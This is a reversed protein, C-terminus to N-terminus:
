SDGLDAIMEAIARRTEDLKANDMEPWLFADGNWALGDLLKRLRKEVRDAAAADRARVAMIAERLTYAYRHDYWAQRLGEWHLTDLNEGPHDPDPYTICPQTQYPRNSRESMVFDDFANVRPRQFTWSAAGRAETRFFLFGALYRNRVMNGIQGSYSGTAYYWLTQGAKRTEEAMHKAQAPDFILKWGGYCHIDLGLGIPDSPLYSSTCYTLWGAQKATKVDWLMREPSGKKWYGPEDVLVLVPDAIGEEAIAKKVHILSQTMASGLEDPWTDACESLVKRAIALKDALTEPLWGGWFLFPGKLGGKMSLRILRRSESALAFGTVTSDEVTLSGSCSLHTSEIGHDRIDVIEALVQEESMKKWRGSDSYLSRVKDTLDKLRFPYVRIRVPYEREVGEGTVRMSARYTGPKAGDALRLNIWLGTAEGARCTVGDPRNVTFDPVYDFTMGRCYYDTRRPHFVIQRWRPKSALQVGVMVAPSFILKVSRLDSPTFLGVTAVCMEGPAGALVVPKGLDASEPMSWPRLEGPNPVPWLVVEAPPDPQPARPMQAFSGIPTDLIVRGDAEDAPERVVEWRRTLAQARKAKFDALIYLAKVDPHVLLRVERQLWDAGRRNEVFKASGIPSKGEVNHCLWGTLTPPDFPPGENEGGMIKVQFRLRYLVGGKPHPIYVRIRAADADKQPGFRLVKEGDMEVISADGWANWGKLGDVFGPSPLLNGSGAQILPRTPHNVKSKCLLDGSTALLCAGICVLFWFGSVLFFRKMRM